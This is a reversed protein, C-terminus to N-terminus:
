VAGPGAAGPGATVGANGGGAGPGSLGATVAANQGETGNTAGTPVDPTSDVAFRAMIMEHTRDLLAQAEGSKLQAATKVLETQANILAIREKSKHAIAETEIMHSLENIRATMQQLLEGQQQIQQVLLQPPPTKDDPPRIQPPLMKQLRDAIENGNPLDLSRVLLDAIIPGGAPYVRLLEMMETAAEQRRSLYSPGMSVAVDYRGADLQIAPQGNNRVAPRGRFEGQAGNVPVMEPTIGDEGLIRMIRPGSYIKPILDVLIRGTYKVAEAFNDQFHFNSVASQAVRRQIAVGSQEPAPAGFQTPYIGTVESLDQGAGQSAMTLAQINAEAVVRQPPPVTVGGLTKPKYTLVAQPKQNSLEWQTEYGEIQGEAVLWPAKPALAIAEAEASKFYNYARQTDKAHRIVGEYITKGDLKIKSGVVRVVQLYRGALEGRELVEQGAIKAFCAKRKVTPRERFGAARLKETFEAGVDSALVTGMSVDIDNMELAQMFEPAAESLDFLVDPLESIWRYEHIRVGEKAVWDAATDGLATWSGAMPRDRGPYQAKWESESIDTSIIVFRADDGAIERTAPDMIVSHADEIQRISLRQEFSRENEYEACVDWFGLGTRAASEGGTAYAVSANSSYEINRIIGQFVQGTEIDGKADCPNVTVSPKSQRQENTVQRVFQPLRNVTLIPRRQADRIAKINTDWQEGALFSLDEMAASRWMASNDAGLRYHEFAQRVLDDDDIEYSDTKEDPEVREDETSM